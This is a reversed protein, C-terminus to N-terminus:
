GAILVRSFQGETPGNGKVSDVFLGWYGPALPRRDVFSGVDVGNLYATLTGDHVRLVVLNDHGAHVPMGRKILLDTEHGSQWRSFGASGHRTIWFAYLAWRSAATGNWRAMVGVRGNGVPRVVSDIQGNALHGGTKPLDFQAFGDVVSIVLRGHAVHMASTAHTEEFWTHPDGHTFDVSVLPTLGGVPLPTPSAAFLPGALCSVWALIAVASLVLGRM